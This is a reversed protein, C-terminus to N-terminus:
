KDVNSLDKGEGSKGVRLNHAHELCNKLKEALIPSNIISDHSGPIEHVEIGGAIEIGGTFVEGWGLYPDHYIGPLQKSARFIIVKAQYVQPVYAKVAQINAAQIKQLAEPLSMFSKSLLRVFINAYYSKSSKDLLFFILSNLTKEVYNLKSSDQKYKDLASQTEGEVLLKHIIGDEDLLEENVKKKTVKLNGLIKNWIEEIGLERLRKFKNVWRVLFPVLKTYMFDLSVWRLVSFFRLLPPLLKPYGPGYTDFLALLAVEEGLRHLQQAIELAVIGGTSLGAFFYPGHPQRSKILALYHAAMDEVRTHPAYKGDLGRPQLGYVPQDPGMSLGLDRYVLLNGGGAHIYFLPPRSGNPQIAVLSSWPALWEEQRIIKSLEEITAAQFLTALPLNKGFKKEIQAFLRVALLSHGGLDFFNDTIGVPHIDLIEEWIKTLQLELEDKPAVFTDEPELRTTDPHPLSQHDVKGNPTLPLADLLVFTSPVMYDPLKEALFRRLEKNIPAQLPIPVVYAILRKEGPIDQTAMVVTERVEPHQSLVAEIEGLEIRFGRVKVQNDIRGLFEIKGDPLYRAKDGTKYLKSKQSKVKSKNHPNPIFKEATLEPRNFYGRALGDGSIYLEGVVGIPVPQLNPDLIYVETNAIPRGIPVLDILQQPKTISYCCTFTTNETPGYGNILKCNDLKNLFKQVHSVSLVDGGALLQRLPRLDELREDVMLHFFGATLWLTTVQYREITQGLEELSPMHNPFLVLRAGNLLSGWIEFTSADFCIPALQLFVEKANLNAYNAEKVLRVVGQHIVSVAKPKGTSGSTYIIYALNSKTLRNTPNEQCHKRIAEWDTDICIVQARIEPLKNLLSQQTLLVPLQTDNVIFSLREFPYSPDLPVYAGGAKLIGLLGVVMAFSREVCIGVLVESGVGLSLLYNALQNARANLERYTLQKEQHVLAVADPTREVQEEFLQHICKNQPYDSQTNNWEVLLQQRETPTLLPIDSIRETPNAVIAALLNQFHGSIRTITTADFLDSNYEWSAQLGRKTEEVSVLLDFKATGTEVPLPTLTLGSLQLEEIPANQLVFMVQFLPHYSLSREPQLSEVLKEFPLDQHAYADLTLQKVQTLLEAFSPNEELNVRLVLTNVFFGILPEIERRNRNAIPSGVVIDEVGTYRWLLIVFAALLTMFLTTGCRQSLSKLQHTLELNIEVHQQAGRFSQVPPRVRDTPLELLPSCGALQQQWYNLQTSLVEGDLWVRQWHAFDAYQIPLNPLPSLKATSFAEYLSSLEQIFIGISWADAIIHHMVVVLVHSEPALRLLTLRILTENALDFLRQASDTVLSKVTASQQEEPLAQLDVIPIITTPKPNIVQVVSGSVIEFNTRLAEHRRVIEGVAQELVAVNLSGQFQVAAPINYAASNGELQNLFWLRAQAFSLPLNGDRPAPLIPSLNSSSSANVNRLFTLIEAKREKLQQLLAPTLAKSPAEYCLDDGEAWLKVDLRRLHSLFEDITKM